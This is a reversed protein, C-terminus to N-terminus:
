TILQYLGVAVSYMVVSFFLHEYGALPGLIQYLLACYLKLQGSHYCYNTDLHGCQNNQIQPMKSCVTHSVYSKQSRGGFEEQPNGQFSTTFTPTSHLLTKNVSSNVTNHSSALSTSAPARSRPRATRGTGRIRSHAQNHQGIKIQVEGGEYMQVKNQWHGLFCTQLHLM